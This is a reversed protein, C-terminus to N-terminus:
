HADAEAERLEPPREAAPHERFAASACSYVLARGYFLYIFPFHIICM